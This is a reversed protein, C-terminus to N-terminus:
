SAAKAEFFKADPGCAIAAVDASRQNECYSYLTEQEGSVPHQREVLTRACKAFGFMDRTYQAAFPMFHRCDKCFKM